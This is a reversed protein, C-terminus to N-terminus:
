KNEKETPTSSSSSSPTPSSTPRRPPRSLKTGSGPETWADTAILSAATAAPLEVPAGDREAVVLTRRGEDDFVPVEVADSPGLYIVARLKM